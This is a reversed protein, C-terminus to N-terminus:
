QTPVTQLNSHLKVYIQSTVMALAVKIFLFYSIKPVRCINIGVLYIRFIVSAYCNNITRLVLPFPCVDMFRKLFKTRTQKWWNKTFQIMQDLLKAGSTVDQRKVLTEMKAEKVSVNHVAYLLWKRRLALELLTEVKLKDEISVLQQNVEELRDEGSKDNQVETARLEVEQGSLVKECSSCNNEFTELSGLAEDLHSHWSKVDHVLNTHRFLM